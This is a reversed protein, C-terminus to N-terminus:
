FLWRQPRRVQPPQATAKRQKSPQGFVPAPARPLEEAPEAEPEDAAFMADIADHAPAPQAFMSALVDDASRKRPCDRWHEGLWGGPCQCDSRVVKVKAEAAIEELARACAGDDNVACHRGHRMCWTTGPPDSYRVAERSEHSRRWSSIAWEVRYTRLDGYAGEAAGFVATVKSAVFLRMRDVGCVFSEGPAHDPSPTAIFAKVAEIDREVYGLEFAQLEWGLLPAPRAQPPAM